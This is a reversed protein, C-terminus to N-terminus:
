ARDGRGQGRRLEVQGRNGLASRSSLNVIRGYKAAVMHKTAAACCLFMSTLNTAIM